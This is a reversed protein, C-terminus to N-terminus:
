FGPLDLQPYLTTSCHYIYIDCRGPSFILLHEQFCLVMIKFSHMGKLRFVPNSMDGMGHFGGDCLLEWGMFLGIRCFAGDWLSGWGVLLGWGM